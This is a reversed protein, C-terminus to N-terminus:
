NNDNEWGGGLRMKLEQIRAVKWILDNESYPKFEELEDIRARIIEKHILKKLAVVEDIRLPPHLNRIISELEEEWSM